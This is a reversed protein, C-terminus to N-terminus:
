LNKKEDLRSENTVDDDSQSVTCEGGGGIEVMPGARWHFVVSKPQYGSLTLTGDAKINDFVTRPPVTEQTAVNM